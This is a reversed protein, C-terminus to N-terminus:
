SLSPTPNSLQCGVYFKSMDICFSDRCLMLHINGHRDFFNSEILEDVIPCASIQCLNNDFMIYFQDSRTNLSIFLMRGDLCCKEAM